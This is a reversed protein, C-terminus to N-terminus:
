KRGLFCSFNFDIFLLLNKIFVTWSDDIKRQMAVYIKVGPYTEKFNQIAREYYIGFPSLVKIKNIKILKEAVLSDEISM